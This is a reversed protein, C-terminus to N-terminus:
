RSSAGEEDEERVAAAACGVCHEYCCVGGGLSDPNLGQARRVWKAAAADSCGGGSIM